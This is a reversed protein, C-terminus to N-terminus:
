KTDNGRLEENRKERREGTEKRRNRRDKIEREDEKCRRKKKVKGEM